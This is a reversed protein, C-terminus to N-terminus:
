VEAFRLICCMSANILLIMSIYGASGVNMFMCANRDLAAYKKPPFFFWNPSFHSIIIIIIM